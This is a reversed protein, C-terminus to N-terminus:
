GLQVGGRRVAHLVHGAGVLVLLATATLVLSVPIDRPNPVGANSPGAPQSLSSIDPERPSEAARSRDFAGSTAPPEFSSPSEASGGINRSFGNSVSASRDGVGGDPELRPASGTRRPGDDSGDSSGSDSIETTEDGGIETGGDVVGNVVDNVAESTRDVSDEVTEPGAEVAEETDGSAAKEMVDRVDGAIEGATETVTDTAEEVSGTGPDTSEHSAAEGDGDAGEAADEADEVVDDEVVDGTDDTVDGSGLAAAQGAPALLLTLALGAALSPRFLSRHTM